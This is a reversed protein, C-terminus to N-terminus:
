TNFQFVRGLARRAAKDILALLVAFPFLDATEHRAEREFGDGVLFLRFYDRQSVAGFHVLLNGADAPRERDFRGDLGRHIQIFIIYPPNARLPACCFSLAYSAMGICLPPNRRVPLGICTSLGTHTRRVWGVFRGAAVEVAHDLYQPLAFGQLQRAVQRPM